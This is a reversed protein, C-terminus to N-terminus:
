MLGPRFDRTIVRSRCSIRLCSFVKWICLVNLMNCMPQQGNRLSGFWWLREDVASSTNRINTEVVAHTISKRSAKRWKSLVVFSKHMGSRQRLAGHAYFSLGTQFNKCSCTTGTWLQGPRSTTWAQTSNKYQDWTILYFSKYPSRDSSTGTQTWGPRM